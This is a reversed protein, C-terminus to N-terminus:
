IKNTFHRYLTAIGYGSKQAISDLSVAEIGKEAFLEFAADLFAQRKVAMQATDKEKNRM